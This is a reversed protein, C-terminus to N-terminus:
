HCLWQALCSSKSEDYNRSVLFSKNVLALDIGSLIKRSCPWWTKMDSHKVPGEETTLWMIPRHKKKKKFSQHYHADDCSRSRPHQPFLFYAEQLLSFHVLEQTRLRVCSLICWGLHVSNTHTNRPFFDALFELRSYDPHFSLWNLLHASILSSSQWPVSKM